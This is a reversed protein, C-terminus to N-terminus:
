YPTRLLWSSIFARTPDPTTLLPLNTNAAVSVETTSRGYLLWTKSRQVAVALFSRGADENHIVHADENDPLLIKYLPCNIVFKQMLVHDCDM